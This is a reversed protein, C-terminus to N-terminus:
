EEPPNASENRQQALQEWQQRRKENAKDQFDKIEQETIGFEQPKNAWFERLFIRALHDANGIVNGSKCERIWRRITLHDRRKIPPKKKHQETEETPDEATEEDSFVSGLKSRIRRLHWLESESAMLKERLASHIICYYKADTLVKNLYVNSRM